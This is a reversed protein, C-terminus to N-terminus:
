YNDQVVKAIKQFCDYIEKYNNKGAILQSNVIETITKKFEKLNKFEEITGIARYTQNEKLAQIAVDNVDDYCHDCGVEGYLQCEKCVEPYRESEAKLCYITQEITPKIKNETM